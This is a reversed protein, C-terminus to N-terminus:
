SGVVVVTRVTGLTLGPTFVTTGLTTDLADAAAKTLNAKVGGLRVVDQESSATLGSLDLDFVPVRTGRNVKATLQPKAGLTVQFFGITLSNAGKAFTISGSHDIRGAGAALDLQGGTVRFATSVVTKGKRVVAKTDLQPDFTPTVGAAVLADVIGPATTLTTKGGLVQQVASPTAAQTPTAIAPLVLASAAACGALLRRRRSTTRTAPHTRRVLPM